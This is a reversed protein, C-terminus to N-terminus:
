DRIIVTAMNRKKKRKTSAQAHSPQKSGSDPATVDGGDGGGLASLNITTGQVLAILRHAEEQDVSLSSPLSGDDSDFAFEPDEFEDSDVDVAGELSYGSLLLRDEEVAASLSVSKRDSGAPTAGEDDDNDDDYDDEYVGVVPASPPRTTFDALTPERKKENSLSSVSAAAVTNEPENPQQQGKHESEQEEMVRATLQGCGADIDIGRRMRPTCAVGFEEKLVRCFRDVTARSSPKAGFGDTPNLPIVNCHVMDRRLNHTVTLLRGLERATEESDNQGAVLAWELTVRQKTTQVHSQVAEMLAALGGFRRNAPLLASREADTACHLSVALRVQPLDQALQRMNPVVGVTSVTIRRSGIGLESQIRWIAEKLNRYNALPEGMGMFVINSLRDDESQQQLQAQFRAVQEVMEDATLQRRFGMQGTACFVCGQACGAQSSICATWKRNTNNGNKHGHYPMLVSEMVQGDHCRYARKVTGDKQSVQELVLSLSGTQSYQSLQQRLKAPLNVMLNPDTVGQQRIWHYIQAARYKPHNWSTVVTQLEPLTITSLHLLKLAASEGKESEESNNSTAPRIQLKKTGNENNSSSPNTSAFLRRPSYQQHPALSSSIRRTRTTTTSFARVGLLRLTSQSTPTLFMVM